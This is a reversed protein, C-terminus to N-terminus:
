HEINSKVKATKTLEGQRLKCPSLLQIAKLAEHVIDDMSSLCLFVNAQDYARSSDGGYFVSVELLVPLFIRSM